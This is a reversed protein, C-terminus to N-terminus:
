FKSLTEVRPFDANKFTEARMQPQLNEKSKKPKNEQLFKEQLFFM